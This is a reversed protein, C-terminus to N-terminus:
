GAARLSFAPISRRRLASKSPMCGARYLVGCCRRLGYLMFVAPAAPIPPERQRYLTVVAARYCDFHIGYFFLFAEASVCGSGFAQYRISSPAPPITTLTYRRISSRGRNQADFHPLVPGHATRSFAFFFGQSGAAELSKPPLPLLARLQKAAARATGSVASARKRERRKSRQASGQESYGGCAASAPGRKRHGFRGISAKARATEVAAGDGARQIRWRRRECAGAQPVRFPRHESKSAGNRGSRWGRSATDAVPPARLRQGARPKPAATPFLFIM